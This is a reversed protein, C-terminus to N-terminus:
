LQKQLREERGGFTFSIFKEQPFFGATYYTYPIGAQVIGRDEIFIKGDESYGKLATGKTFNKFPRRNDDTGSPTQNESFGTITIYNRTIVLQGSYVSSDNPAWAGWLDTDFNKSGSGADWNCSAMILVTLLIGLTIIKKLNKMM